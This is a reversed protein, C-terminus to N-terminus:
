PKGCTTRRSQPCCSVSPTCCICSLTSIATPVPATMLSSCTCWWASAVGLVGNIVLLTWSFFLRQFPAVEVPEILVLAEQKGLCWIIVWAWNIRGGGPAHPESFSLYMAHILRLIGCMWLCSSRTLQGYQSMFVVKTPCALILGPVGASFSSMKTVLTDSSARCEQTGPCPAISAFSCRVPSVLLFPCSIFPFRVGKFTM